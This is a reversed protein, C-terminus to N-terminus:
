NKIYIYKKFAYKSEKKLEKFQKPHLPFVPNSMKSSDCMGAKEFFAYPCYFFFPWSEEGAQRKLISSGKLCVTFAANLYCFM